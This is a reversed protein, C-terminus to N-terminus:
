IKLKKQYVMLEWESLEKSNVNSRIKNIIEKYEDISNLKTWSPTKGKCKVKAANLIIRDIPCHPPIYELRGLCWYYKLMLNILKQSHGIKFDFGKYSFEKSLNKIKNVLEGETLSGKHNAIFNLVDKKINKRFENKDIDGTYINARQTAARWAANWLQDNIFNDKNNKM